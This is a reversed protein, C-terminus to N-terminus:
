PTRESRGDSCHETPRRGIPREFSRRGMSRQSEFISGPHHGPPLPIQSPLTVTRPRSTDEGAIIRSRYVDYDGSYAHMGLLPWADAALLEYLLFRRSRDSVNAPSGHVTRCHHVTMDGARGSLPVAASVDPESTELNIAGVFHGDRHHDHVPGRHSGPIVQMAGNDADADDLLFGFALVDDNTHPYFAWDQHWEVPIGYGAEKMNIKSSQLRVNPGLLRTAVAVIEPRRILDHFFPDVADPAKIRRVRPADPTHTADLDFVDTHDTLGRAGALSEDVLRHITALTDADLVNRVVLYGNERYFAAQEDTIM